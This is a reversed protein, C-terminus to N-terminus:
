NHKEREVNVVLHLHWVNKVDKQKMMEYDKRYFTLIYNYPNYIMQSYITLTM